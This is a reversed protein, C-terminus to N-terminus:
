GALQDSLFRQFCLSEDLVVVDDIAAGILQAREPQRIAEAPNTIAMRLAETRDIGCNAILRQLSAGMTTHAGALAGDENVLRGKALTITQDYLRFRDPGGVTPMADSVLMMRDAVPRARCALAIMEDAVHHGDCIIGLFCESNILAGVAGADRAQMQSMANFLHTGCRAGAAIAQAVLAASANTHGISVIVGLAVMDAIQATTAAEPAITIMVPLGAACLKELLDFTHADIPRVHEAAHTGRKDKAIHPGEIHLGLLGREGKAAIVAAVARELTEPTDTIVTPMIAVTGFRRHAAAIAKLGDCAPATNLLVGGGGNVQVDIFGPCLLGALSIADPPAMGSEMIETVVGGVIRIACGERLDRGDFLREPIIWNNSM